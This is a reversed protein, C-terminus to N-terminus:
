VAAFEKVWTSEHAATVPGYFRASPTTALIARRYSEWEKEFDAVSYTAPRVHKAAFSDPENGIKFGNEYRAWLHM